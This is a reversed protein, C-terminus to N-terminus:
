TVGASPRANAAMRSARRPKSRPMSTAPRSSAVAKATEAQCTRPALKAIASAMRGSAAQTPSIRARWASRGDFAPLRRSTPAQSTLKLTTHPSAAACSAPGV